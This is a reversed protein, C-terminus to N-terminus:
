PETLFNSCLLSKEKKQPTICVRLLAEAKEQERMEWEWQIVSRKHAENGFSSTQDPSIILASALEKNIAASTRFHFGTQKYINDISACSFVLDPSIDIRVIVQRILRVFVFLWSLKAHARDRCLLVMELKSCVDWNGTM